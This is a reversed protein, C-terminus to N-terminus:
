KGFVAMGMLFLGFIWTFIFFKVDFGVMRFDDPDQENIYLKVKQGVKYHWFSAYMKPTVTRQWEKWKYTFSPQFVEQDKSSSKHSDVSTVISEVIIYKEKLKRMRLAMLSAILGTWLLVIILIQIDEIGIKM